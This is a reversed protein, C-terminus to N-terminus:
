RNQGPASTTRVGLDPTSQGVVVVSLTGGWFRYEAEVPQSRNNIWSLLGGNHMFEQFNEYHEPHYNLTGREDQETLRGAIRSWTSDSEPVSFDLAILRGRPQVARQMSEWVMERVQQPMEHLAISIVAADFEHDFPLQTADIQKFEAAIHKRRAHSLMTPSSDVGVMQCGAAVLMATLNGTGCCVDLVRQGKLLQVIKQRPRMLLWRNIVDGSKLNQNISQYPDSSQLREQDNM